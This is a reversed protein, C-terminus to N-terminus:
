LGRRRLEGHLAGAERRIPLVSMKIFFFIVMTVFINVVTM